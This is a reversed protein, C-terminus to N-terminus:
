LGRITNSQKEDNKGKIINMLFKKSKILAINNELMFESYQTERYISM